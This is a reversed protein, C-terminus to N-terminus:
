SALELARFASARSIELTTAMKEAARGEAMLRVVDDAKAMATAKRGKCKGDVRAEAIGERQRELM